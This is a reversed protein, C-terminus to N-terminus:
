SLHHSNWRTVLVDFIAIWPCTNWNGKGPSGEIKYRNENEIFEEIEKPIEVRLKGAISHGKFKQNESLLYNNLILNIKEIM